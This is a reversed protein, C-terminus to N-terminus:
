KRGKNKTVRKVASGTHADQAEQATEEVSVADPENIEEILSRIVPIFTAIEGKDLKITLLRTAYLAGRSICKLKQVPLAFKTSKVAAAAGLSM